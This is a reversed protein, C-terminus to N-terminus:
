HGIAGIPRGGARGAAIPACMPLSAQPRARSRSARTSPRPQDAQDKADRVPLLYPLNPTTYTVWNVLKTTNGPIEPTAERDPLGSPPIRHSQRRRAPAWSGLARRDNFSDWPPNWKPYSHSEFPNQHCRLGSGHGSRIRIVKAFTHHARVEVALRDARHRRPQPDAHGRHRLPRRAVPRGAADRWALDAAVPRPQQLRVALPHVRQHRGGRVQGDVPQLLLQRAVADRHAPVRDPPEQAALAQAEFFVCNARSCIRVAIARLRDRHRASRRRSTNTSSVQILVLMAGSRPQAGFPCRRFPKAGCPRQRVRVKRAARRRLPSLAGHTNSPGILWREKWAQTSCCRTGVSRGPSRTM